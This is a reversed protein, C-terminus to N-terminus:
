GPPNINILISIQFNDCKTNMFNLKKHGKLANFM